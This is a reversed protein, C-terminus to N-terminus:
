KFKRSSATADVAGEHSSNRRTSATKMIGHLKAVADNRAPPRVEPRVLLGERVQGPALRRIGQRAPHQLALDARGRRVDDHPRPAARRAPVNPPGRAPGRRRVRRRISGHVLDKARDLADDRPVLRPPVPAAHVSTRIVRPRKRNLKQGLM